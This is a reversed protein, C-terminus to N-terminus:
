PIDIWQKLIRLEEVDADAIELVFFDLGGRFLTRFVRPLDMEPNNLTLRQHGDSWQDAPIASTYVSSHFHCMGIRGSRAALEVERQFDVGAQHTSIWLHGTDLCLPADLHVMDRFFMNMGTYAPFDNEVCILFDPFLERAQHINRKQWEYRRAFEAEGTFDRNFRKGPFLAFESRYVPKMCEDYSKGHGFAEPSFDCMLASHFVVERIGLKRFQKFNREMAAFTDSADERALNWFRDQNLPGHVSLSVGERALKEIVEAPATNHLQVGFEWGFKEACGRCRNLKERWDAGHFATSAFHIKM